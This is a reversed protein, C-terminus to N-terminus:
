IFLGKTHPKIDLQSPTLNHKIKAAATPTLPKLKRWHGKEKKDGKNNEPKRLFEKKFITQTKCSEAKAHSFCCENSQIIHWERM